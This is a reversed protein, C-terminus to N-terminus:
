STLGICAYCAGCPHQEIPAYCTWTPPLALERAKRVVEVKSTTLLPACVSVGYAEKYASSLADIFHPRCDPFRANDSYNCGIMVGGLGNAQATAVAAAIFVANRGAFVVDNVKPMTPLDVRQFPVGYKSATRAAYDLEIVHPQGYDFGVAMVIKARHLHLCLTSDMGGSLLLLM